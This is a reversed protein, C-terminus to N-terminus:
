PVGGHQPGESGADARPDGEALPPRSRLATMAELVGAATAGIASVAFSRHSRLDEIVLLPLARDDIRADPAPDPVLELTFRPDLRAIQARLREPAPRGVLVIHVQLSAIRDMAVRLARAADDTTADAFRQVLTARMPSLLAADRPGAPEPAVQGGASRAQLATMRNAVYAALALTEQQQALMAAINADSPDLLARVAERPPKGYSSLFADVQRELPDSRGSAKDSAPATRDNREVGATEAACESPGLRLASHCDSLDAGADLAATGHAHALNTLQSV